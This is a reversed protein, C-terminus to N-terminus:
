QIGVDIMLIPFSFILKLLIALFIVEESRFFNDFIINIKPCCGLTLYDIAQQLM